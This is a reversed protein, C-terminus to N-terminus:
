LKKVFLINLWKLREGNEIVSATVLSRGQEMLVILWQLAHTVQLMMILGPDWTTM